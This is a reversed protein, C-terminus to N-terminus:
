QGNQTGTIMSKMKDALECIAKSASSEPYAKVVPLASAISRPVSIDYPIEALVSMGKVVAFERIAQSSKIHIDSKNIVIGTPINFYAVVELFRKLDNLAAPTPETVAVVYDSGKISAIVPCGIGPPGDILILDAGMMNAESRASTKVEDVLRGSSSEGISLEGSIIVAKGMEFVNIKGNRAAKIEIAGEPCVIACAGCGECSFPVVLPKDHSIVISFFRCTNVCKLCGSCKEYDIFAKESARIDRSKKLAAHFFLAINPADVDTDAMVVRYKESLIAGLSATITSKGVGGKGSLVVIEKM